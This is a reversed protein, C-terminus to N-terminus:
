WPKRLGRYWTPIEPATWRGGLLGVGQCVIIWLVLSAARM